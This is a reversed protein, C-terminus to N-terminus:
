TSSVEEGTILWKDFLTLSMSVLMYLLIIGVMPTVQRAIIFLMM